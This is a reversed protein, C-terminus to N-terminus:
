VTIEGHLWGRFFRELNAAVQSFEQRIPWWAVVENNASTDIGFLIGDAGVGAFFIVTEALAIFKEDGQLERLRSNELITQDIPWVIWLNEFFPSSDVSLEEMVGNTEQLLAKLDGPFKRQLMEEASKIEQDDAGLQFRPRTTTGTADVRTSYVDELFQKWSEM